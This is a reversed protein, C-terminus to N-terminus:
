REEGAATYFGTSALWYISRLCELISLKYYQSSLSWSIQDVLSLKSSQDNLCLICRGLHLIGVKTKATRLRVLLQLEYHSRVHYFQKCCEHKGWAKHHALCIPVNWALQRPGSYFKKSCPTPGAGPFTLLTWMKGLLYSATKLVVM